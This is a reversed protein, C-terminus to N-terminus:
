HAFALRARYVFHWPRRRDGLRELALRRLRDVGLEADTVGRRRVGQYDGQSQLLGVFRAADGEDTSLMAVERGWSFHGSALMRELHGSKSWSRVGGLLRRDEKSGARSPTVPRPGPVPPPIREADGGPDKALLSELAQIGSRCDDWAQEALCDGVVPPWDCDIAAFVGGPRLIRGVERLTPGPEMWHLAQVALVVDAAGSGLGTDHSLGAVYRVGSAARPEAIARMDDSPEVGVVEIAWRAAWRSSLGTGSGLDVVLRPTGGCYRAILEGLEIPPTPRVEDYLPGFGRFRFAGSQEQRDSVAVNHVMVPGHSQTAVFEVDFCLSLDGRAPANRWM